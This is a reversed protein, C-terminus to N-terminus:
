KGGAKKFSRKKVPKEAKKDAAPKDERAPDSPSAASTSEQVPAAVNAKGSVEMNVQPAEGSKGVEANLVLNSVADNGGKGYRQLVLEGEASVMKVLGLPRVKENLWIDTKGGKQEIAVHEAEVEGQLTTIKEKGLSEQKEKSLEAAADDDPEIPVNRPASAGERVIIKHINETKNAPGTLLMKYVSPFGEMPVIETEVWYGTENGVKEDGVIAQRLFYKAGSAKDNLEYWAYVGVEPQILKGSLVDGIIGQGHMMRPTLVALTIVALCVMRRM